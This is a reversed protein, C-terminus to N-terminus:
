RSSASRFPSPRVKERVDGARIRAITAKSFHLVPSPSAQWASTSMPTKREINLSECLLQRQDGTQEAIASMPHQRASWGVPKTTPAHKRIYADLNFMIPSGM